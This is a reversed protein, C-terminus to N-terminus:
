RDVIKVNYHYVVSNVLAGIPFDGVDIKPKLRYKFDYYMQERLNVQWFDSSIESKGFILNLLDVIIQKQTKEFRDKFEQVEGADLHSLGTKLDKVKEGSLVTFRALKFNLIKKCSRAVMETMCVEQIHPLKSHQAM